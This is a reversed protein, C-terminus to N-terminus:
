IKPKEECAVLNKINAQVRKEECNATSLPTWQLGPVDEAHWQPEPRQIARSPMQIQSKQLPPSTWFVYEFNRARWTIQDQIFQSSHCNSTSIELDSNRPSLTMAEMIRSATGGKLLSVSLSSSLPTLTGGCYTSVPVGSFDLHTLDWLGTKAWLGEAGTDAGPQGTIRLLRPIRKDKEM